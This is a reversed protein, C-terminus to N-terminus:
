SQGAADLKKFHALNAELTDLVPQLSPSYSALAKYLPLVLFSIFGVQCKATSVAHRDCNMSITLGRSREFDGQTFFECMVGEIWTEYVHLSRAPNSIDAAKIILCMVAAADPMLNQVAEGDAEAKSAREVQANFHQVTISERKRHWHNGFEKAKPMTTTVDTNLVNERLLAIFRTREDPAFNELFNLEPRELLAIAMNCHHTELVAAPPAGSPHGWEARSTALTHETAVLFPNMVGPHDTDHVLASILLCGVRLPDGFAEPREIMILRMLTSVALMVDVAHRFNHFPRRHYRRAVERVFRWLKPKDIKSVDASLSPHMALASYALSPLEEYPVDHLNFDWSSISESFAADPTPPVPTPPLLASTKADELSTELGKLAAALTTEDWAPGSTATPSMATPQSATNRGGSGGLCSFFGMCSPRRWPPAYPNAYVCLTPLAFFEHALACARGFTLLRRAPRGRWPRLSRSLGFLDM